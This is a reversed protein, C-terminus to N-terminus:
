NIFTKFANMGASHNMKKEAKHLNNFNIATSMKQSLVDLKAM